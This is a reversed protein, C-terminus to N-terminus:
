DYIFEEGNIVRTPYGTRYNYEYSITSENVAPIGPSPDYNFTKIKIINNPNSYIGPNGSKEFVRYPNHFSDYEFISKSMHKPGTGSTIFLYTYYDEEIVNGKSDYTYSMFQTVENNNDYILIKSIRDNNNYEFTRKSRFEDGGDKPIYNLQTSLRGTRDYEYLHYM